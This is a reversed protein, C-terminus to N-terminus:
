HRPIQFGIESAVQLQHPKNLEIRRLKLPHNVWIPEREVFTHWTALLFRQFERSAFKQHNESLEDSVTIVEPPRRYWISGVQSMQCTKGSNDTLFFESSGKEVKLSSLYNLIQDTNLRFIDEPNLHELVLPINPEDSGTIVLITETM